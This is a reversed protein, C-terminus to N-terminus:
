KMLRRTIGKIAWLFRKQRTTMDHWGIGGEEYRMLFEVCSALDSKHALPKGAEMRIANIENDSFEPPSKPCSEDIFEPYSKM